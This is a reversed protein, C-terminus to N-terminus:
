DFDKVSIGLKKMPFGVPSIGIERSLRSENDRSFDKEWDIKM